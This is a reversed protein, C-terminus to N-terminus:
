KIELGLKKVVKNNTNISVVSSDNCARYLSFWEVGSNESELKKMKFSEDAEFVYVADLHVHANVYQGNKIHGPIPFMQISFIDKFLSHVILGRTEEFAEREAVNYLNEEGDAHGGPYIWGGFINHKVVVIKDRNQNLIFSSSTFHLYKNNRTLVDDFDNMCRLFHEKDKAEQENFPIYSEIQEKLSM